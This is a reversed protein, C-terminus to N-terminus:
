LDVRCNFYEVCEANAMPLEAYELHAQEESLEALQKDIIDIRTQICLAHPGYMYSFLVGDLNVAYKAVGREWSAYADAWKRITVLVEDYIFTTSVDGIISFELVHWKSKVIAAVTVPWLKKVENIAQGL